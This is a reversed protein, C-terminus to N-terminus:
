RARPHAHRHRRPRRERSPRAAGFRRGPRPGRRSWWRTTRGGTGRVEGSARLLAAEAMRREEARSRAVADATELGAAAISGGSAMERARALDRQAQAAAVEARSVAARAETEAGKAASLRAQAEARSRPDLPSARPATVRAVVQGPEVRDGAHVGVRAVEVVGRDSLATEVEVPSPRLALVVLAVAVVAALVSLTRRLM